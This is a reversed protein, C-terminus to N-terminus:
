KLFKECELVFDSVKKQLLAQKEARKSDSLERKILLADLPFVESLFKESRSLTELIKRLTETREGQAVKINKSVFHPKERKKGVEKERFIEWNIERIHGLDYDYHFNNSLRFVRESFDASHSIFWDRYIALSQASNFRSATIRTEANKLRFDKKANDLELANPQTHQFAPAPAQDFGCLYVSSITLAHAFCLATGAVTGNRESLMYPCGIAELFDRELGDGYCLPLIKKHSFINKPVSCEAELAFITEAQGSFDLHKKAWFGGDSSMVLDPVIGSKSLPMFASSVAILFFSDRFEKLFSLSTALSPGSAAVIVPANGPALLVPTCIRKAFILSNKLWRKSFYSRTGLVDRAKLIAAKIENWARLNENPFIQKTAAWDFALSSILKEEGLSNFLQESLPQASVSDLYFIGDWLSDSEQFFSCLRIAYCKASPFRSKIYPACYSLAPELVFVCLPSFDAGLNAAFREGENTPNYKSHLHKGQFCCTLEGSKSNEFHIESDM